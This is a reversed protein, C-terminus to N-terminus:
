TNNVGAAIALPGPPAILPQRTSSQPAQPNAGGAQRQSSQGSGSADKSSGSLSGSSPTRSPPTPPTAPQGATSGSSSAGPTSGLTTAPFSTGASDNSLRRPLLEATKPEQFGGSRVPELGEPRSANISYTVEYKGNGQPQLEGFNFQGLIDALSIKPKDISIGQFNALPLIALKLTNGDRQLFLIFRGSKINSNSKLIRSQPFLSDISTETRKFGSIIDALKIIGQTSHSEERHRFLSDLYREATFGSDRITQALDRASQITRKALYEATELYQKTARDRDIEGESQPRVSLDLIEQLLASYQVKFTGKNTEIDDILTDLNSLDCKLIFTDGTSAKNLAQILYAMETQAITARESENLDAFYFRNEERRRNGDTTYELTRFQRIINQIKLSNLENLTRAIGNAASSDNLIAEISRETPGIHSLVAFEEKEVDTLGEVKTRQLKDSKAYRMLAAFLELINHLNDKSIASRATPLLNFSYVTSSVIAQKEKLDGIQGIASEWSAPDVRGWSLGSLCTLLMLPLKRSKIM